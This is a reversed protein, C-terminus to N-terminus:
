FRVAAVNEPRLIVRGRLSGVTRRAGVGMRVAAAFRGLGSTGRGVGTDGAHLRQPQVRVDALAQVQVARGPERGCGAWVYGAPRREGARAFARRTKSLDHRPFLM